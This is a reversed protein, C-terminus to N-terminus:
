GVEGRHRAVISKLIKVITAAELKENIEWSSVVSMSPHATDLAALDARIFTWSEGVTYSGHLQQEARGTQKANLCAAALLEGYLQAVPNYGEVGRKAEVVILFPARLEGSIPTGFAGDATGTLEVDGLRASLPVEAQAVIRETEALFLLPFIARSWVTAENVLSPQIRRLGATVRDIIRLETDSLEGQALEEWPERHIGHEHLTVLGAIDEWSLQTFLLKRM